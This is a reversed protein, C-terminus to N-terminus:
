NGKLNEYKMEFYEDYIEGVLEEIMDELTAIGIHAGEDDEIVAIHVRKKKMREFVDTVDSKANAIFPKRLLASIKEDRKSKGILDKTYLIGTAKGDSGVVPIRTFGRKSVIECAQEITYDRDLAFVDSMPVMVDRIKVDGFKFVKHIIDREIKKIVGEKEGLTALDKISRESVLLHEARVRGGTMTIFKRSFIIFLTIAPSLLRMLYYIRRSNNMCIKKSDSIATSKPIIDGFVIILFTLIGIMVSVGVAQFLENAALAAVASLIINVINNGTLITIIARDLNKKLEIIYKINKENNKQMQAVQSSKLNVLATETGAFWGSLYILFAMLALLAFVTYVIEM